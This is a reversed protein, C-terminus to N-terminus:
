SNFWQESTCGLSGRCTRVAIYRAGEIASVTAYRTVGTTCESVLRSGIYNYGAGYGKFTTTVCKGDTVRDGIRAAIYWHTSGAGNWYITGDSVGWSTTQNYNDTTFVAMAAPAAFALAAV